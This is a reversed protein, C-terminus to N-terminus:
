QVMGFKKNKATMKMFYRLRQALIEPRKRAGDIWGVRIRKYSEPFKAFNKWTVPNEKLALLIDDPLVFKKLRASKGSRAEMHHRISELGFRRMKGAKM